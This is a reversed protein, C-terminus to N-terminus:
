HLRLLKTFRPPYVEGNVQRIIFTLLRLQIERNQQFFKEYSVLYHHEKTFYVENELAGIERRIIDEACRFTDVASNIRGIIERKDQFTNLFARMRNRLYKEDSNSEDEVWQIQKKQLYERLSEKPLDLLPRLLLVGERESVKSM